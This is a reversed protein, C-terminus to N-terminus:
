EPKQQGYAMEEWHAACRHAEEPTRFVGLPIFGSFARRKMMFRNSELERALTCVHFANQTPSYECVWAESNM